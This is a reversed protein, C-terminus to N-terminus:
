ASKILNWNVYLMVAIIALFATAVIACIGGITDGSGQNTLAIEDAPNRLRESIFAGGAAPAAAEAAEVSSKKLKM